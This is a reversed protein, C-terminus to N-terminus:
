FLKRKMIELSQLNFCSEFDLSFSYEDNENEERSKEFHCSKCLIQLNAKSNDGGNALPRIHDIECVGNQLSNKCDM